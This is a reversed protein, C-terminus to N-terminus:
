THIGIYTHIRIRIYTHIGVYTRMHMIIVVTVVKSYFSTAIYPSMVHAVKSAMPEDCSM